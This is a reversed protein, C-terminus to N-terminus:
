AAREYDSLRPELACRGGGRLLVCRPSDPLWLAGGLFVIAVPISLGYMYRWGGERDIFAYRAAYLIRSLQAVRPQEAKLSLQAV